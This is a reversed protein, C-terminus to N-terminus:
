TRQIFVPILGFPLFEEVKHGLSDLKVPNMLSSWVGIESGNEAGRLLEEPASASLQAYGPQGFVDSTFFHDAPQLVHSRYPRPLRRGEPAASFRFCGNQTDTVDVNGTVLAESADLREVDLAGLVTVRRLEVRGPSLALAPDGAVTADLIADTVVIRDVLGVPRVVIPAVVSHDIALEDIQGEVALIV